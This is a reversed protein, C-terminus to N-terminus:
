IKQEGLDESFRLLYGDPDLVLIERCGYKAGEGEYWSDKIGRKLPYNHQKLSDIITQVSVTEIQFNIGRGFPYELKEEEQEGDVLEQLM